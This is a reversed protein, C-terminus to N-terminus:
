LDPGPTDSSILRSATGRSGLRRVLQKIDVCASTLAARWNEDSRYPEYSAPTIGTLDSPLHLDAIPRPVVIVCRERGLRGMFLGLEFIVNDRAVNLTEKRITAVDDPTLVFIGFDFSDLISMLTELTSSTLGFIGASWPSLEAVYDLNYVLAEAIDLGERSSAVFIRPKM